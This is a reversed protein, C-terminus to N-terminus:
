GSPAVTRHPHEQHLEAPAGTTAWPTAPARLETPRRGHKAQYMQGDAEAWADLLSPSHPGSLGVSAPVGYDALAQTIRQHLDWGAQAGTGTSLVVFEDGGIRAVLEDPTAASHLALAARRLLADGAEHGYRDNHKKLGDIDIVAVTGGPQQTGALRRHLARRNALGTLPDTLAEITMAAAEDRAQRLECRLGGLALLAAATDEALPVADALLGPDNHNPLVVLASTNRWPIRVILAGAGPGAAVLASHSAQHRGLHTLPAHQAATWAPDDLPWRCANTVPDPRPDHIRLPRLAGEAPAVVLVTSGATAASLLRLLTTVVTDPDTSGTIPQQWRHSTPPQRPTM